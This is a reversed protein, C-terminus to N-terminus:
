PCCGPQSAPAGLSLLCVTTKHPRVTHGSRAFFAGFSTVSSGSWATHGSRRESLEFLLAFFPAFLQGCRLGGLQCRRVYTRVSRLIGGSGSVRNSLKMKRIESPFKEGKKESPILGNNNFFFLSLHAPLCPPFFSVM